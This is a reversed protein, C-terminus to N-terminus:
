VLWFVVTYVTHILVMMPINKFLFLSSSARTKKEVRIRREILGVHERAATTNIEVIPVSDKVPEFERDM